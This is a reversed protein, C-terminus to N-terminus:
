LNLENGGYRHVSPLKRLNLVPPSTALFYEFFYHCICLPKVKYCGVKNEFDEKRKKDEANQRVTVM